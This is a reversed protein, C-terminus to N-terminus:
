TLVRYYYSMGDAKVMLGLGGKSAGKGGDGKKAGGRQPDKAGGAGKGGPDGGPSVSTLVRGKRVASRPSLVPSKCGRTSAAATRARPAAAASHSADKGATGVRGRSHGTRAHSTQARALPFGSGFVIEFPIGEPKGRVARALTSPSAPTTSERSPPVPRRYGHSTSPVSSSSSASSPFYAQLPRGVARQHNEADGATSARPLSSSSLSASQLPPRASGRQHQGVEGATSARESISAMNSELLAELPGELEWGCLTQLVGRPSSAKPDDWSIDKLPPSRPGDHNAGNGDAYWVNSDEAKEGDGWLAGGTDGGAGFKDHYEDDPAAFLRSPHDPVRYGVTRPRMQVPHKEMFPDADMFTSERREMSVKHHDHNSHRQQQQDDATATHSAHPQSAHSMRSAPSSERSGFFIEGVSVKKPVNGEVADSDPSMSFSSTAAIGSVNAGGGGGDGEECGEVKSGGDMGQMHYFRKQREAAVHERVHDLGGGELVLDGAATSTRPREGAVHSGRAVRSSAGGGSQDTSSSTWPRTHGGRGGGAAFCLAAPPRPRPNSPSVVVPRPSARAGRGPLMGAEITKTSAMLAPTLPGARVTTETFYPIRKVARPSTTSRGQVVAGGGGSGGARPSSSAGGPQKLPQSGHLVLAARNSSEATAPDSAAPGTGEYAELVDSPPLSPDHLPPYESSSDPPSPHPLEPAYPSLSPSSSATTPGPLLPAVSLPSSRDMPSLLPLADSPLPPQQNADRPPFHLPHPPESLPTPGPRLAPSSDALILVNPPHPKTGELDLTMRSSTGDNPATVARTNTAVSNQAGEVVLRKRAPVVSKRPSPTRNVGPSSLPLLMPSSQGVGMSKEATKPKETIDFSRSLGDGEVEEGGWESLSDMRPRGHTSNATSLRRNPTRPSMADSTETLVTRPSGPRPSAEEQASTPVEAPTSPRRRTGVKPSAGAAADMRPSMTLPRAGIRPSAGAAKSLAETRPSSRLGSQAAAIALPSTQGQLSVRPSGGFDRAPLRAREQVRPSGGFDRAPLRVGEPAVYQQGELGAGYAAIHADSGHSLEDDDGFALMQATGM